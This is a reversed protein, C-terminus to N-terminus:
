AGASLCLASMADPMCGLMRYGLGWVGIEALHILMLGCTLGIMLRTLPLHGALTTSHARMVTRFLVSFGVAHIAATIVVLLCAILFKTPM